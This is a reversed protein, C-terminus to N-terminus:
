SRASATTSVSAASAPACEGAPACRVSEETPSRSAPSAAASTTRSRRYAVADRCWEGMSGAAVTACQSPSVSVSCSALWPTNLTWATTAEASPRGFSRTRTIASYVPPPNPAFPKMQGCSIMAAIVAVATPPM